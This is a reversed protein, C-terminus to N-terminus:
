RRPKDLYGLAAEAAEAILSAALEFEKVSQGRELLQLHKKVAALHTDAPAYRVEEWRHAFLRIAAEAAQKPRVDPRRRRIEQAVRAMGWSVYAFPRGRKGTGSRARPPRKKRRSKQKSNRTAVDGRACTNRDAPARANWPGRTPANVVMKIRAKVSGSCSFAQGEQPLFIPSSFVLSSGERKGYRTSHRAHPKAVSKTLSGPTASFSQFSAFTGTLCFAFGFRQVILREARGAPEVDRGLKKQCAAERGAAPAEVVDRAERVRHM